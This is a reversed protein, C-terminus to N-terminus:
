VKGFPELNVISNTLVSLFVMEDQFGTWVQSLHVFQPQM